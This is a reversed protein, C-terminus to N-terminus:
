PGATRKRKEHEYIGHRVETQILKQAGPAVSVVVHTTGGGGGGGGGAAAAGGYAPVIREGARIATMGEGPPTRFIAMGDNSIRSVIGGHQKGPPKKDGKGGGTGKDGEEGTDGEKLGEFVDEILVGQAGIKGAESAFDRISLNEAKMTKVVSERDLSSYMYYEFLATRLAELTADRITDQYKGTLFTNGFRVYISNKKKVGQNALDLTAGATVSSSESTKAAEEATKKAAEGEGSYLGLKELDPALTQMMEALKKPDNLKTINAMVAKMDESTLGSQAMAEEHSAGGGRAVQYKAAKSYKEGEGKQQLEPTAMLLQSFMNPDAKIQEAVRGRLEETGKKREAERAKAAEYEKKAAGLEKQTAQGRGFREMVAYQRKEAEAVAPDTRTYGGLAERLSKALKTEGLATGFGQSSSAAKQLAAKAPGAAMGRVMKMNELRKQGEPDGIIPIKLITEWIGLLVNYVENMMFEVLVQLKDGLSQTLQGQEKAYDLESKSADKLDKQQEESMTDLVDQTSMANIRDKEEQSKAAALLTEKEEKVAVELKMMGRLQQTNIGLMEAMKTMGLSGAGEMLSSGGGWQSLAATMMDVTAGAGLNEMAFAQGYVGKKNAETDIKLELAQERLAGASSGAKERVEEWLAKAAKPDSLRKQIDDVEGGIASQIDKYLNARKNELDKAVIKKGKAGTLLAVKLRDDQSMNKLGQMATQMFKQANRPNMVKGLMTLLKIASGMRVNYNSLDQSVGRIIAFFKNAAIGSESASRTMQSFAMETNGLSMGMERMLEAQLQGIEQLPVGFHRSYAVSVHTLQATFEGIEQGAAEARKKMDHLAIGEQTLTSLVATHQEASIGWDLNKLSYASNRIKEMDTALDDYALSADGGAAALYETTSASQLISKQFQKAQADADIFLKVMGAIGAGLLGLLPGMKALSGILPGISKGLGGLSKLGEGMTQMMGGMRGGKAEGRRGLATGMGTLKDGGAALGKAAAKTLHKVLGGGGLIVGKLDKSFFSSITGKFSDAAKELSATAEKGMKSTDFTTTVAKDKFAKKQEALEKKLAKARKEAAKRSGEDGTERAKEAKKLAKQLANIKSMEDEYYKGLKGIEKGWDGADDQAKKSVKTSAKGTDEIAQTVRGLQRMVERQFKVFQQTASRTDVDTRVTLVEDPAAM